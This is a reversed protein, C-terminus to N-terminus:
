REFARDAVRKTIEATAQRVTDFSGWYSWGESSAWERVSKQWKFCEVVQRKEQSSWSRQFLFRQGGIEKEVQYTVTNGTFM